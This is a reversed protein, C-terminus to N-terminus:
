LIALILFYFYFYFDRMCQFVVKSKTVYWVENNHFTSSTPYYKKARLPNSNNFDLFFLFLLFLFDCRTLDADIM